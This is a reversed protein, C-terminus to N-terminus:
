ALVEVVLDEGYEASSRAVGFWYNNSVARIAGDFTTFLGYLLADKQDAYGSYHSLPYMLGYGNENLELNAYRGIFESLNLNTVTSDFVGASTETMIYLQMIETSIQVALWYEGTALRGWGGYNQWGAAINLIVAEGTITNQSTNYSVKYLYRESLWLVTGLDTCFLTKPYASRYGSHGGDPFTYIAGETIAGAATFKVLSGSYKDSKYGCDVRMCVGQSIRVAHSGQGNNWQREGLLSLTRSTRNFKVVFFGENSSLWIVSESDFGGSIGGYGNGYMEAGVGLDYAYAGLEPEKQSITLTDWDVALMWLGIGYADSCGLAVLINTDDYPDPFLGVSETYETSDYYVMIAAGLTIKKRDTIRGAKVYHGSSGTNYIFVFREADIWQLNNIGGFEVGLVKEIEDIEMTKGQLVNVFHNRPIGDLDVCKLTQKTANKIKGGSGTANTKGWAM